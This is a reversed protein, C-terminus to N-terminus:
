FNVIDGHTCVGDQLRKYGVCLFVCVPESALWPLNGVYTLKVFSDLDDNHERQEEMARSLASAM